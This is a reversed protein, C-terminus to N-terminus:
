GKYNNGKNCPWRDYYATDEGRYIEQETAKNKYNMYDKPNGTILFKLWAKNQQM